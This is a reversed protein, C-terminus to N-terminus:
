TTRRTTAGTRAYKGFNEVNYTMVVEYAKEPTDYTGLAIQKGHCDIVRAWYKGSPLRKVGKYGTPNDKRIGANRQNQGWDVLEKINEWRNDDRTGNRHDVYKGEPIDGEMLVWILRHLPYTVGDIMAFLYGHKNKSGVVKGADRGVHISHARDSKFVERPLLNKTAIGTIPSYSLYM